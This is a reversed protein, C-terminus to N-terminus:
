QPLITSPLHSPSSAGLAHFYSLQGQGNGPFYPLAPGSPMTMPSSTPLCVYSGGPETRPSKLQCMRLDVWDKFHQLPSPAVEASEFCCSRWSV